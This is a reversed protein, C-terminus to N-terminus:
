EGGFTAEDAEGAGRVGDFGGRAVVVGEGLAEVLLGM